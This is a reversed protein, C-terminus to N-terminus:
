GCTRLSLPRLRSINKLHYFASSPSSSNTCLYLQTDAAYSHFNLGHRRLIQGLPLMYITYLLHGLVSGQPVGQNVRAPTSSSDGITLFQKRNTLYSQFSSLAKGTLGFYDSLRTLLNTHSITDLAASLDLLILISIHGSDVAILLDNTIRILATETSQRATFGSQLPEYLEHNSM